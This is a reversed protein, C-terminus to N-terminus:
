ECPYLRSSSAYSFVNILVFNRLELTHKPPGLGYQFVGFFCSKYFLRTTKLMEAAPSDKDLPLHCRSLSEGAFRFGQGSSLYTQWLGTLASFFSPAPEFIVISCNYSEMFVQFLRVLMFSLAQAPPSFYLNLVFSDSQLQVSELCNQIM